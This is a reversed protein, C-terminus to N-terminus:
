PGQRHKFSLHPEYAITLAAAINSSKNPQIVPFLWREHQIWASLELSKHIWCDASAGFDSITGGGPIYQASVKQHRFNLQLRNRPTFQYNAWAQAGQGQRGIWSGILSEDNTYGSRFRDNNYFFGHQVVPGGGPLDTFIGEVRLNLRPIGPVRALYLGSTLGSKNWALWPNPEDDTFADAYFTLWDRLRPVRYSFDFGGRRDGADGASGPIGNGTSFMAQLLKHSTAPVGTAGFLATASIGLELNPSPKFSVKQGV